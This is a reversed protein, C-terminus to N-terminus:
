RMSQVPKLKEKILKQWIIDKQMLSAEKPMRGEEDQSIPTKHFTGYTGRIESALFRM